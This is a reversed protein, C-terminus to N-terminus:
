MQKGSCAVKREYKPSSPSINPIQHKEFYDKRTYVKYNCYEWLM